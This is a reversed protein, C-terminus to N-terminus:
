LTLLLTVANAQSNTSKKYKLSLFLPEDLQHVEKLLTNTYIHILKRNLWAM